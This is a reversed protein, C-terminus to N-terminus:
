TQWVGAPKAFTLTRKRALRDAAGQASDPKARQTSALHTFTALKFYKNYSVIEM